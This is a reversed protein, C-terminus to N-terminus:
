NLIEKGGSKIKMTIGSCCFYVKNSARAIIQNATGLLERYLRANKNEPIVSLGVENTVIIFQIHNKENIMAMLKALSNELIKILHEQDCQFGEKHMINSVYTSLCDIVCVSKKNKLEKVVLDISLEKEITQWTKPRRQKHEKIKYDLEKDGQIKPMTALYYVNSNTKTALDEALLSKGSKAGGTILLLNDLYPNTSQM